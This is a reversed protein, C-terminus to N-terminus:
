KSGITQNLQHSKNTATITYDRKISVSGNGEIDTRVNDINIRPEWRTLAVRVHNAILAATAGSAPAYLLDHAKCGFQPMRQREGPRTALIISMCQRINEEYESFSVSGSAENFAFPFGWGRGLFEKARSM